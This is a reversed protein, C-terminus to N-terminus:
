SIFIADIVRRAHNLCRYYSLSPLPQNASSGKITTDLDTTMAVYGM